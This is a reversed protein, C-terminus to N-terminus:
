GELHCEKKISTARGEEQSSMLTKVHPAALYGTEADLVQLLKKRETTQNPSIIPSMLGLGSSTGRNVRKKEKLKKRRKITM